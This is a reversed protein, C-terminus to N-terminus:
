LWKRFWALTMRLHEPLFRHPENPTVHIQLKDLAGAAKYTNTATEFAVQAGGLPCNMDKENNLLLLPRPAILRIMSPCDFEDTIGPILKDWVLKVNRRNVSSDGVDKAAQIHTQSITNVRGQWKNNELSWKFSQAAIVPVIVKIRKDVSAAMWTEIGGMSIGMMGIRNAKVDPRTVLYDTLRWLDYVTDFFFPHQQHTNGTNRWAKTIAEVYQQNGKAGGAIREGHYRADIAIGMIGIKTLQFLLNKIDGDEKSGGTGHLCIVAPFSKIGPTVPKYILVPIREAAESYIFGKEIIISDAFSSQFSPKFDVVPRQLLARFDSAVKEAPPYQTPPAPANLQGLVIFPLIFFPIFIASKM